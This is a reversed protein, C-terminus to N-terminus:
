LVKHSLLVGSIADDFDEICKLFGTGVFMEEIYAGATM